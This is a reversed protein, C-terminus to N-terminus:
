EVAAAIEPQISIWYLNPPQNLEIQSGRRNAGRSATIRHVLRIASPLRCIAVERVYWTGEDASLGMENASLLKYM